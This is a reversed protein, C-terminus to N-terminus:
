IEYVSHSTNIIINHLLPTPPILVSFTNYITHLIVLPTIHSWSVMVIPSNDVSHGTASSLIQLM